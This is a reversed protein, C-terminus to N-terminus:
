APEIEFLAQGYEVPMGNEVLIKSLRGCTEAKIENMVKMAEVICVVSNEQVEDGVQVFPPADPAPAAYFTGVIPSTIQIGTSPKTKATTGADSDPTAAASQPMVPQAPMGAQVMQVETDSGRKLCLKLEESEISFETLDHKTMLQAIKTIEDINM